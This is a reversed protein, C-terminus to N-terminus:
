KFAMCISKKGELLKVTKYKVKTYLILYLDLYPIKFTYIKEFNHRCDMRMLFGVTIGSAAPSIM